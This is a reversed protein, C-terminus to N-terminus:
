RKLLRLTRPPTMEIQKKSGKKGEIRPVKLKEQLSAVLKSYEPIYSSYYNTFGLFARLETINRPVEWKEIARLKGPAPKRTGGCLVHGCFEVEKVFLHCKRIDVIFKEAKLLELVRRLDRNHAELLDEGPEVKTGILIDDIFPDAIDRVPFLRDEMMQQFQQSANMLGMVNVRWQFIGEPTSCCTIPRSDPRLPQQHFAQRLDLISFIQNSGQKVLLEEIIPLPYSVRQTQSNPGRLDVVGRWDNGKKPVVFTTSLWGSVQGREPREVFKKEIWEKTVRKHGELREGHM